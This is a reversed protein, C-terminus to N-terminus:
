IHSKQKKTPTHNFKEHRRLILHKKLKQLPSTLPLQNVKYFKNTKKKSAECSMLKLNQYEITTKRKKHTLRLPKKAIPM